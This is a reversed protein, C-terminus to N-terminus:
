RFWFSVADLTDGARVIGVGFGFLEDDLLAGLEDLAGDFGSQLAGVVGGLIRDRICM